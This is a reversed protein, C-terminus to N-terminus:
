FVRVRFNDRGKCSLNLGQFLFEGRFRGSKCGRGTSIVFSVSLQSERLPTRFFSFVFDFLISLSPSPARVMLPFAVEIAKIHWVFRTVVVFPGFFLLFPLFLLIIFLSTLRRTTFAFENQTVCQFGCQHCFSVHGFFLRFSTPGGARLFVLPGPVLLLLHHRVKSINKNKARRQETESPGSGEIEM